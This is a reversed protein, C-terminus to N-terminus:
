RVWGSLGASAFLVACIIPLYLLSALFFRRSGRAGREPRLTLCGYAFFALGAAAVLSAAAGHALGLPWLLAGVPGMAGAALLAQRRATAEGKVCPTVLLGAREYDHGRYLAIALFHPLQWLVMLAFLLFAEPALSGTAATWGLLPPVAGPLTGVHLALHTKRKLPTYLLVYSSIALAAILASLPNVMVWFLAISSTAWVCGVALATPESLRGAPLPRSRTRRMLADVDREILMNLANASAVALAVGFLAAAARVPQISAPALLLGLGAMACSMVVITPKSLALVDRAFTFLQCRVPAATTALIYGM